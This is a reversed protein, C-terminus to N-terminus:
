LYVRILFKCFKLFNPFNEVNLWYYRFESELAEGFFNEITLNPFNVM